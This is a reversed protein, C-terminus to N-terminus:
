GGLLEWPLSMAPAPLQGRVKELSLTYFPHLNVEM